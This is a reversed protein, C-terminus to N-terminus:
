LYIKSCNKNITFYMRDHNDVSYRLMRENEDIVIGSENIKYGVYGPISYFM